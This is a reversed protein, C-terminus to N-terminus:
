SKVHTEAALAAWMLHTRLEYGELQWIQRFADDYAYREGIAQDYNQPSAPASKGLVWFGNRMKIICITLHEHRIYEVGDIKDRITAESVHPHVAVAARAQAEQTTISPEPM